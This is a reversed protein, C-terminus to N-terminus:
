ITEGAAMRQKGEAKIAEQRQNDSLRNSVMGAPDRDPSQCRQNNRQDTERADVESNMVRGVDQSAISRPKEPGHHKSESIPKELM